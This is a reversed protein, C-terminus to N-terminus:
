QAGWINLLATAARYHPRSNILAELVEKATDKQGLGWLAQARYYATAFFTEPDSSFHLEIRTIEGLLELYKRHRLLIEARLWLVPPTNECHEILELAEEYSDIMFAAISLDVTIEPNKLATQKISSLLNKRIKEVDIDMTNLDDFRPIRSKPARKHLIELAYRQRHEDLEKQVEPDGPYLKQLKKLLKKEEEVLRQMRLTILEDLLERKRNLYDQQIKLRRQSRWDRIGLLVDDLKQSRSAELEAKQEAIGENLAKITDADLSRKISDLAEIFFPWPIPVTSNELYSISFQVIKSPLNVNLLFRFVASINESTLSETESEILNLLKDAIINFDGYEKLLNQIELEIYTSM